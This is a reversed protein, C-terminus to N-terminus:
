AAGGVAQMRPPEGISRRYWEPRRGDHLGWLKSLELAADLIAATGPPFGRETARTVSARDCAPELLELPVHQTARARAYVVEDTPRQGHARLMNAVVRMREAREHDRSRRM